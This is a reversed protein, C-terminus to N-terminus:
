LQDFDLKHLDGHDAQEISRALHEVNAPNSLLYETERISNYESQSMLVASGHDTVIELTSQDDNVEDILAHLDQSAQTVSIATM